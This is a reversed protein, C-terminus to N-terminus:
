PQFHKDVVHARGQVGEAHVAAFSRGTLGGDGRAGLGSFYDRILDFESGGGPRPDPASM